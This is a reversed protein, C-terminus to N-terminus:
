VASTNGGGRKFVHDEMKEIRDGLESLGEKTDQRLLHIGEKTDVRLGKLEDVVRDIGAGVGIKTAYNQAVDLRHTQLASALEDARANAKDRVSTIKSDVVWWVSLIAGIITGLAILIELTVPTQM